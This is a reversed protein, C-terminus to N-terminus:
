ISNKQLKKEIAQYYYSFPKGYFIDERNTKKPTKKLNSKIDKMEYLKNKFKYYIRNRHKDLTKLQARSYKNETLLKFGNIWCMENDIKDFNWIKVRGVSMGILRNILSEDITGNSADKNDNSIAIKLQNVLEFQKKLEKQLSSKRVRIHGEYNIEYGVFGIWPFGGKDISDWKYPKKSKAKWFSKPDDNIKKDFDHPILKLKELAKRYRKVAELCKRKNTHIIIMDDCYRLYLLNEDKHKLVKKDAFDLVINAILGSLAGGQPVGIKANNIRKYYKLKILDDHVWGFEGNKINKYKKFYAIDENKPFVDKNFTYSDLYRYFIRNANNCLLEPNDKKAYKLLRMFHRKIVTHNVSDYFKKMDCEAVWLKERRHKKRYEIIRQFADHHQLAKKCGDIERLARFAYSSDSFYKDFLNTFYRNALSIIIKDTLSFLSIPRCTNKTSKKDEKLKPYIDPKQFKFSKDIVDNRLRAIFNDLNKLFMEDPKNRRYAKITKILSIINKDISNLPQDNKIREKKRLEKWKRRCPLIKNLEEEVDTLKHNHYNFKDDKTLMHVVHKKNRQKAIKARMRCLYPVIEQDTIYDEFKM